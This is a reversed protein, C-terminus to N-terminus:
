DTFDISASLLLGFDQTARQSINEIFAATWTQKEGHWRLAFSVLWPSQDLESIGSRYPSSGGQIQMLWQLPFSFLPADLGLTIAARAYDRNRLGHDNRKFPHIQWADGHLSWVGRQVDAALGLAADIGGHNWGRQQNGTPLQMSSLLAVAWDDSEALGQRFKLQINGLEWRSKGQWQGPGYNYAFQNDPRLERGGNPLGLARHYNRLFSDFVGASPRLLTLNVSFERKGQMRKRIEVDAVYLEMDAIYQNATPLKDALFVTSYHQNLAFRWGSEQATWASEPLPDLYRLMVPNMQRVPLPELRTKTTSYEAAHLLSPM